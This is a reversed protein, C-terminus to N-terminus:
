FGMVSSLGYGVSIIVLYAAISSPVGVQLPTHPLAHSLLCEHRQHPRTGYACASCCATSFHRLFRYLRTNSVKLFDVTSVFTQGTGDELAVANMNPFGSVPLGMAGAARARTHTTNDSPHQQTSNTRTPNSAPSLPAGARM